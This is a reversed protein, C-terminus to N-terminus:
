DVRRTLTITTPDIELKINHNLLPHGEIRYLEAASYGEGTGNTGIRVLGQVGDSTILRQVTTVVLLMLEDGASVETSGVSTVSNRVLYARGSLVNSRAATDTLVGQYSVLEGGTHGGSATFASGGRYTRFTTLSSYSGGQEGDVHVAVNGPTGTVNSASGVIAESLESSATTALSADLSGVELNTFYVFPSLSGSLGTPGGRFDKDRFLGGLPLRETCGHYDTGIEIEAAGSLAGLLARPRDSNSAVPPYASADEYGINRIDFITPDVADGSIRGTGMTTEFGVSALVELAKPNPIAVASQDLTTSSLLFAIGSQLPGTSPTIDINSSESGWPDGQYPTRSYNVVISDSTTAPGPLVCTPGTLTSGLSLTKSVGVAESRSDTSGPRTLVARFPQSTDFSGRDFGFINAELVYNGSEFSTINNPSKTLDIADANLIFTSDGDDDIEIWFSPGDMSQRLLNKAGAGNSERSTPNYASGNNQYDTAEYVAFLRAIGYFPPLQLGKRGLGRAKAGKQAVTSSDSFFQMGAFTNGGFTFTFNYQAAGQAPNLNKTSFTAYSLTGNSYAVYDKDGDSFPSSGKKSLFMFNIGESFTGSSADSPLIPVYCAGWGPVLHRPLTVCMNNTATSTSGSGSFFGLPDTTNWKATVGDAALLPMIGQARYLAYTIGTATPIPTSADVAITTTTNTSQVRYTGAAAGSPIVLIVSDATINPFSASTDTFIATNASSGTTGTLLATPAVNVCRGDIPRFETPMNLRRFPQLVVTKSGPDLYTEATVPLAGRYLSSTGKSRYKSWLPAWGIQTPFNTSPVGQPRLMLDSSPTIYSVSHVIDPRKSLGRGAGYLLYVTIYLQAATSGGPLNVLTITLDTQSSTGTATPSVPGVIYDTGNVLPTTSGDIRVEVASAYTDNVFRVQDSDGGPFGSKFQNLPISLVDTNLFTAGSAGPGTRNITFTLAWSVNVSTGAAAKAIISVPQLVSADSFVTRINDPADLKTVGLSAANNSFKDQYPVLPGQPGAGTRKWTSRLRGRVLKDISSNLLADYDFGNPNVLHRLDLIDTVAIQDSYLGDPRNSVVQLTAGIPHTEARSGNLGRTLGNLTTGTISSYTMYEDGVKLLVPSAPSTPLPTNTISALTTSTATASLASQLIPLSLFSAIGTRDVSTPNRNFGGNLNQSPDGSWAVSNRRFVANIPIAYVYGDVTGLANATGDGARWLGPDGLVKRMNAFTFTTATTAAGQAKVVVPDFGDPNSSLGVLGKVVRVRYQVQIRQTTEFGIAPDVLDDPLFSFGGEVNGYKWIASSAPKNQTSPNSPVRALWVELFVFDIRFDGSNSPPPDLAIVNTTDTDNPSGPPTGTRTGAVPVLWGNVVAWTISQTEDARQRGFRFWNSWLVNTEYDAYPNTENGLFGSPVSRLMGLRNAENQIDQSLNLEADCPPKGQQWLTLLFSANRPDLVRSVGSGYNSPM